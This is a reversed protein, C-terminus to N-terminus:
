QIDSKLINAILTKGTASDGIVQVKSGRIQIDFKIKGFDGYLHGTEFDFGNEM